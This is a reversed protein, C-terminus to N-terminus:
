EREPHRGSDVGSVRDLTEHRTSAPRDVGRIQRACDAVERSLERVRRDLAERQQAEHSTAHAVRHFAEIMYTHLQYQQFWYPRLIRFLVRQALSRFGSAAGPGSVHPTALAQLQPLISAISSGAPQDPPKPLQMSLPTEVPVIVEPLQARRALEERAARVRELLAAATVQAGRTAQADVRGRAARNAAGAPDTWLERMLRAAQDLDPTAPLAGGMRDVLYSNMSTMLPLNGGHATALVPLGEAMASAITHAAGEWRHLSVYVDASSFDPTQDTSEVIHIAPHERAAARLREAERLDMSTGTVYITLEASEERAFARTFAAITGVANVRDPDDAAEIVQVFRTRRGAVRPDRAGARHLLLPMTFVPRPCVDTIAARAVDTPVWIEDFPESAADLGASASDCQELWYGIVSRASRSGRLAAAIQRTRMPGGCVVVMDRGVSSPQVVSVDLGTARVAAEFAAVLPLLRPESMDILLDIGHASPATTEGQAAASSSLVPLLEPPIREPAIGVQWLWDIFRPADAGDIDRFYVQLDVRDQYISHLYRSLSAPGRPDPSNLWEVFAGPERVDFPDPPAPAGHREAAIVADRYLRRMRTTLVLGSSTSQWGYAPLPGARVALVRRAYDECLERVDARESLLIRPRPGQNRSLLWPQELDFGSFHFFRLPRGNVRYGDQHTITRAHLNWYAVNYGPDKLLCPEFFAPVFDIVRQDTFMMRSVDSVADRRTHGWWWELFPRAARSVAIFGLNYIGAALIFFGDVGRGDAPLPVTTHPTLVIHHREALRCVEDLAGYCVIDPDLYIVESCGQDLLRRLLLPKVATSLETVDYIGALRHLEARDLDLDALRLWKVRQDNEPVDGEGADIVLTTFSGHEHCALFSDLLVRGPALYNRALITCGTIMQLM